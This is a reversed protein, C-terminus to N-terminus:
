ARTTYHAMSSSRTTITALPSTRTTISFHLLCIGKHAKSFNRCCRVHDKLENIHWGHICQRCAPCEYFKINKRQNLAPSALTPNVYQPVFWGRIDSPPRGGTKSAPQNPPALSWNLTPPPPPILPPAAESKMVPSSIPSLEPLNLNAM